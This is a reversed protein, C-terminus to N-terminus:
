PQAYPGDLERICGGNRQPQLRQQALESHRWRGRVLSLQPRSCPRSRRARAPVTPDPHNETGIAKNLETAAKLKLSDSYSRLLVVLTLALVREGHPSDQDSVNAAGRDGNAVKMMQTWTAGSTPLAMVEQQSLWVGSNASSNTAAGTVAITNSDACANACSGQTSPDPLPHPHRRPHLPRSRLRFEPLLSRTFLTIMTIISRARKQSARKVRM